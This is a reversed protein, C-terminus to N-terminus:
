RHRGAVPAIRREPPSAAAQVRFSLIGRRPRARRPTLARSEANRRDGANGARARGLTKRASETASERRTRSGIAENLKSRAFVADTITTDDLKALRKALADPLLPLLGPSAQNTSAPASRTRRSAGRKGVARSHLSARDAGAGVSAGSCGLLM